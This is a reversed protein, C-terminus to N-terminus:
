LKLKNQEIKKAVDFNTIKKVLYSQPTKITNKKIVPQNSPCQYNEWIFNNKFQNKPSSNRNNLDDIMELQNSIPEKNIRENNDFINTKRVPKITVNIRNDINNVNRNQNESNKPNKENKFNLNQNFENIFNRDFDNLNKIENIINFIENIEFFSDNNITKDTPHKNAFENTSNKVFNNNISKYSVDSNHQNNSQNIFVSNNKINENIKKLSNYQSNQIKNIPEIILNVNNNNHIIESSNTRINSSFNPILNSNSNIM